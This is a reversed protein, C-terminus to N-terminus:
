KKQKTKDFLTESQASYQNMKAFSDNKKTGILTISSNGFHVGFIRISFQSWAM